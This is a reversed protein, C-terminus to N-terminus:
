FSRLNLNYVTYFIPLSNSESIFYGINIQPWKENDRNHGYESKVINKAYTSFSTVDYALYPYLEQKKLWLEFFKMREDHTISAFLKSAKQSTLPAESLTFGECFSKVGEFVNDRATMCLAATQALGSREEGLRKDLAETLLLNRMAHSAIFPMGVARDSVHTLITGDDGDPSHLAWYKANPMLKGSEQDLKGIAARGSRPSGKENRYSRPVHRVPTYKGNLAFSL